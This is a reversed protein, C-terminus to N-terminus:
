QKTDYFISQMDNQNAMNRYYNTVANSQAKFNKIERRKSSLIVLLADRNRSETAQINVSIDTIERILDQLKRIVNRYLEKHEFVEKNTQQYIRDFGTDLQDLKELLVGKQNMLENFLEEEFSESKLADNQQQTLILLERMVQLKQELIEKLLEIYTATNKSSDIEV